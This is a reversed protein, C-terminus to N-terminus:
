EKPGSYNIMVTSRGADDKSLIITLTINPDKFEATILGGAEASFTGANMKLAADKLKDKYFSGLAELSETSESICMGKLENGSETRMGGNMLVMSPHMPVWSPPKSAAASAGMVTTGKPGKMIITGDPNKSDVTVVEGSDNKVVIKGEALDKWSVTLVQGSSKMKVTMTGAAEDESVLEIDPNMKIFMKALARDPRKSFDDLQVGADSLMGKGKGWLWSGLSFAALGGLVLVVACGIAAYSCGSSSKQPAPPVPPPTPTSM